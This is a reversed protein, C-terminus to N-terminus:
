KKQAEPTIEVGVYDGDAFAAEGSDHKMDVFYYPEGPVVEKVEYTIANDEDARLFVRILAGDQWTQLWRQVDVDNVNHNSIYLEKAKDPEADNVALFGMGPDANETATSWRYPQMDAFEQEQKAKDKEKIKDKEKEYKDKQFKEVNRRITKRIRDRPFDNPVTVLDGALRVNGGIISDESLIVAM